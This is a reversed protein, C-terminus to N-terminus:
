QPTETGSTVLRVLVTLLVIVAVGIGAWFVAPPLRPVTGPEVAQEAAAAVDTASAGMVAPALLALDYQPAEASASGYLRSVTGEPKFFRARWSPLLLRASAITLPRNDGEEVILLLDTSDGPQV